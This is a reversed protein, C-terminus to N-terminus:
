NNVEEDRAVKAYVWIIAVLLILLLDLIRDWIFSVVWTFVRM